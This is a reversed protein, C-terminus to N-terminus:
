YTYINHINKGTPLKILGKNHELCSKWFATATRIKKEQSDKLITPDQGELTEKMIEKIKDMSLNARRRAIHKTKMLFIIIRKGELQYDKHILV